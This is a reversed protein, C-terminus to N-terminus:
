GVGTETEAKEDPAEAGIWFHHKLVQPSPRVAIGNVQQEAGAPLATPHVYCVNPEGGPFRRYYGRIAGEMKVQLERTSNDYWLLGIEM